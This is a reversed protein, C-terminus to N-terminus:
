ISVVQYGLMKVEGPSLNICYPKDFFEGTEDEVAACGHWPELCIFPAKEAGKTWFALMPFGKFNMQVGQGNERHVLRISESKIDNLIVTDVRAFLEYNLAFRDQASLFPECLVSSLLGEKTLLRMSVEEPHEFIIEYDEFHEGERFPCRFATHAGICFPMSTDGTNEIRFVTSFGGKILQHSVQLKFAYPYRVLTSQNESLEFVIRDASQEVVDFEQDRAFGHRSMKYEKGDFRIAGNKLSGVIPFLVPNRGAWFAPDGSWIHEIGQKNRFSVLEGGHSEVTASFGQLSLEYQM